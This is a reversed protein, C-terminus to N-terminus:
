FESNSRCSVGFLTHPTLFDIYWICAVTAISCYCILNPLIAVAAAPGDIYIQIFSSVFDEYLLKRHCTYPMSSPIESVAPMSNQKFGSTKLPRLIEKLTQPEL